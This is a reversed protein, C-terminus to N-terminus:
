MHPELPAVTLDSVDMVVAIPKSTSRAVAPPEQIVL